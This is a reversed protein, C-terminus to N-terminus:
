STPQPSSYFSIAATSSPARTTYYSTREPKKGHSMSGVSRIARKLMMSRDERPFGSKKEKENPEYMRRLRENEKQVKVLRGKMERLEVMIERQFKKAGALENKLRTVEPDIYIDSRPTMVQRMRAIHAQAETSMRPTFCAANDEVFSCFVQTLKQMVAEEDLSPCQSATDSGLGREPSNGGVFNESNWSMSEYKKLKVRLSRIEHRLEIESKRPSSLPLTLNPRIEKEDDERDSNSPTSMSYCEIGKKQEGNQQKHVTYVGAQPMHELQLRELKGERRPAVKGDAPAVTSALTLLSQMRTNIDDMYEDVGEEESISKWGSSSSSSGGEGAPSDEDSLENEGTEGGDCKQGEAQAEKAHNDLVKADYREKENRAEEHADEMEAEKKTSELTSSRTSAAASQILSFERHLFCEDRQHSAIVPQKIINEGIVPEDGDDDRHKDNMVLTDDGDERHKDDVSCCSTKDDVGCSREDAILNDGNKIIDSCRPATCMEDDRTDRDGQEEGSISWAGNSFQQAASSTCTASLMNPANLSELDQTSSSSSTMTHSAAPSASASLYSASALTSASSASLHSVIGDNKLSTGGCMPPSKSPSSTTTSSSPPSSKKTLTTNSALFRNPTEGEHISRMSSSRALPASLSSAKTDTIGERDAKSEGPAHRRFSNDRATIGEMNSLMRESNSRMLSKKESLSNGHLWRDSKRASTSLPPGKACAPPVRSPASPAQGLLVNKNEMVRPMGTFQSSRRTSSGSSETSTTTRRAPAFAPFIDDNNNRSSSSSTDHPNNQRGHGGCAQAGRQQRQKWSYESMCYKFETGYSEKTSQTSWEPVCLVLSGYVTGGFWVRPRHSFVSSFIFNPLAGGGGGEGRV